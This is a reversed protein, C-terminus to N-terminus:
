APVALAQLATRSAATAKLGAAAEAATELAVMVWSSIGGDLDSRAFTILAALGAPTTPKTRAMTNRAAASGEWARENEKRLEIVGARKDWEVGAQECAAERAKADQYEAEIRKRDAGPKRLFDERANDIEDGGIAGYNRWKILEFPRTGHQKRAINEAKELKEYVQCAERLGSKSAEIAAFIPDVNRDGTAGAMDLASVAVDGGAAHAPTSVATASTLAAASIISNM